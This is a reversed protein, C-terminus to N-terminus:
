AKAAAFIFVTRLQLLIFILLDKLVKGEWDKEPYIDLWVMKYSDLSFNKLDVSHIISGSHDVAMTKIM